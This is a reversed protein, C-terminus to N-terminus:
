QIIEAWGEFYHCYGRKKDYSSLIYQCIFKGLRMHHKQAVSIFDDKNDKGLENSWILGYLYNKNVSDKERLINERSQELFIGYQVEDDTASYINIACSPDS